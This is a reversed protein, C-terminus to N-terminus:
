IKMNKKKLKSILYAFIPSFFTKTLKSVIYIKIKKLTEKIQRAGYHLHFQDRKGVDLYIAKLKKVKEERMKLFYIPDKSQWKKWVSSKIKGTKADIPFELGDKNIAPSYCLTMAIANLVTFSDRGKLFTGKKLSEFVAPVGGTKEIIPIAKYVEPLVSAEFFCDPAIAVAISFINPFLSALHLAGYGGSSGGMVCWGSPAKKVQFESKVAPVLEDIIYDQYNGMGKSNIFQSGGWSTWADVFVYIAQPAHGTHVLADLSQVFNQDFGRDSFYKTGNGAYGSLVFVVPWGNKPPDSLPLLVPNRRKSSDRLPNKKLAQSSILLTKIKLSKLEFLELNDQLSRLHNTKSEM